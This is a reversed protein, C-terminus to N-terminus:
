AIRRPIPLGHREAHRRIGHLITTHDRNLLRGIQPYSLKTEAAARYSAEQRAAVIGRRHSHGMLEAVTLGHKAAVEIKIREFPAALARRNKFALWTAVHACHNPWVEFQTAAVKTESPAPAPPNKIWNVPKIPPFFRRHVAHAKAVPDIIVLANM